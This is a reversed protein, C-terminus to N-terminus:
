TLLKRCKTPLPIDGSNGSGMSKYTLLVLVFCEFSLVIECLSLSVIFFIICAKGPDDILANLVDESGDKGAAIHLPTLGAPGQADPQFLFKEQSGDAFSIFEESVNVPVYRLLQEVMSKSNRRVARHLLGLESLAVKLSSHEGSGVNGAVLIDVLKKVVASWDHDMSFDMLWKFRRFSFIVANPDQDALRSKLNSRHLLWGMENIFEMAQRRTESIGNIEYADEDNKKLELVNELTRIESCVDKEAVLFPFFSSSLGHDEVQVILIYNANTKVIYQYQSYYDTM